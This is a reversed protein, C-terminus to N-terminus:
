NSRTSDDALVDAVPDGREEESLVRARFRPRRTRTDFRGPAHVAVGCGCSLAALEGGPIDDEAETKM